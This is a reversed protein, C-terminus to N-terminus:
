NGVPVPIPASAQKILAAAKRLLKKLKSTRPPLPTCSGFYLFGSWCLEPRLVHWLSLLLIIFCFLLAFKRIWRWRSKLPNLVRTESNKPSYKKEYFAIVVYNACFIISFLMAGPSQGAELCQYTVILYGLVLCVRALLFNTIGLLKQLWEIFPQFIGDLLWSDICDLMKWRRKM